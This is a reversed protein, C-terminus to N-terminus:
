AAVNLSHRLFDRFLRKIAGLIAFYTNGEVITLVLKLFNTSAM